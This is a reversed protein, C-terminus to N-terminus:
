HFLSIRGEAPIFVLGSGADFNANPNYRQLLSPTSNTEQAIYSLNDEPLLPYTLFLGYKNSVSRDGYSCNVPVNM